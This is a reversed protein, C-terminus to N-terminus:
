KKTLIQGGDLGNKGNRDCNIGNKSANFKQKCISSILNATITLMQHRCKKMLRDHEWSIKAKRFAFNNIAQFQEPFM